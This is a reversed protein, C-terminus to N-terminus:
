RKKKAAQEEAQVAAVKDLETRLDPDDEFKEPAAKNPRGELESNDDPVEKQGSWPERSWEKPFRMAEEASVSNMVKPGDEKHYLTVMMVM